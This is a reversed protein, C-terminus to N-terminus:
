GLLRESPYEGAAVLARVAAEVVPKDEKYTVGYWKDTSRLVQVTAKGAKLLDNVVFPLFYEGKLPNEVLTKELFAGIGDEFAHIMAQPFGFLNMSVTTDVSIDVWTEGGDETYAAGDGRKEIRVRETIDELYGEADVTCEGRSVSGHDTLTNKLIYGVMACPLAEADEPLNALKDYILQFAERGYFDDANIVAFPADIFQRASYVAHGTGWPKTRGEPVAYPAPIDNLDQMAYCVDFYKEARHGVAAMFDDKIQERIIFVVKKFGARRADFLSYDIIIEGNAGIPDIQKIGGYRSGMGAAMIVLIPEKKM